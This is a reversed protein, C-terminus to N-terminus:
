MWGAAASIHESNATAPNKAKNCAAKPTYELNKSENQLPTLTIYTIAAKPTTTRAPQATVRALANAALYDTHAPFSIFFFGRLHKTQNTIATAATVTVNGHEPQPITLRRPVGV